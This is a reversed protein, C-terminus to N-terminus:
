AAPEQTQGAAVDFVWTSSCCRSRLQPKRHDARLPEDVVLWTQEGVPQGDAALCSLM